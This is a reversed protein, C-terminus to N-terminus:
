DVDVILEWDESGEPRVGAKPIGSIYRYPKGYYIVEDNKQYTIDASWFPRETQPKADKGKVEKWYDPSLEPLLDYSSTHSKLCKYLKGLKQVVDGVKYATDQAYKPFVLLKEKIQDATLDDVDITKSVERQIAEQIKEEETKPIVAYKQQLKKESENWFTEKYYGEKYPLEDVDYYEHILEQQVTHFDYLKKGEKEKTFRVLYKM